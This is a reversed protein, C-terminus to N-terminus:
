RIITLGSDVYARLADDSSVLPVGETLAQAILLRDFPDRHHLPLSRLAMAHEPARGLWTGAISLRPADGTHLLDLKGIPRKIEIEAVSITSVLLAVEPDQLQATQAPSLREPLAAAWLLVHTDLLVRNM